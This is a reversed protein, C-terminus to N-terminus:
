KNLEKEIWADMEKKNLASLMLSVITQPAAIGQTYLKISLGIKSLNQV